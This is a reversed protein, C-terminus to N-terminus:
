FTPGLRVLIQRSNPIDNARFGFDVRVASLSLGVGIGQLWDTRSGDFPGTIRGADYFAHVAVLPEDGHRSSTLAIRYVTNFLALGEGSAEKFAYGHVSGIGGIAFRREIPLTGNSFGLISRASWL